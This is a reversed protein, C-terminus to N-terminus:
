RRAGTRRVVAVAGPVGQAGAEVLGAVQHGAQDPHCEGLEALHRQQRLSPELGEEARARLLPVRQELLHELGSAEVAGLPPQTLTADLQPAGRLLVLARDGVQDAPDALHAAVLRRGVPGLGGVGQAGPQLLQGGRRHGGRDLLRDLDLGGRGGLDGRGLRGGGADLEGPLARGVGGCTAGPGRQLRRAGLVRAALSADVLRLAGGAYAAQVVERQLRLGVDVVEASLVRGRADWRASRRPPAGSSSWCTASCRRVAVRVSASM